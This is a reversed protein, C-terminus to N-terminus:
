SNSQNKLVTRYDRYTPVSDPEVRIFESKSPSLDFLYMMNEHVVPLLIKFTGDSFAVRYRGGTIENKVVDRRYKDRTYSGQRSEIIRFGALNMDFVSETYQIKDKNIIWMITRPGEVHKWTGSVGESSDARVFSTGLSITATSDTVDGIFLLEFPTKDDLNKAFRIYDNGGMSVKMYKYQSYGINEGETKVAKMTGDSNFVYYFNKYRWSGSIDYVKEDVAKANNRIILTLSLGVIAIWVITFIKKM